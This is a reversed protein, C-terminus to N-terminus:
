ESYLRQPYLNVDDIQVGPPLAAIRLMTEAVEDTSMMQETGVPAGEVMATAVYGPNISVVRVGRPAVELAACLSLGRLAFKSASYAALEPVATTGVVSAVNLVTRLPAGRPPDFMLPLFERMMLFAGRVNTSMTEDWTDTATELLKGGYGVGAANVLCDLTGRESRVRKALHVIAAEDRVDLTVPIARESTRNIEKAISGLSEARRACLYVTFGEAAFRRAVAEGIGSSAGTVVAVRESYAM